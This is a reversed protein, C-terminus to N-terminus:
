PFTGGKARRIGYLNVSEAIELIECDSLYWHIPMYVINYCMNREDGREIGSMEPLNTQACDIGRKSMFEKFDDPEKVWLPAKWFTSGSVDEIHTKLFDSNENLKSYFFRTNRIRKEEIEKLKKLRNIGIQAQLDTFQYSLFSPFPLGQKVQNSQFFGKFIRFGLVKLGQGSTISEVSEGRYFTLFKLFYRTFYKFIFPNLLTVSIWDELISIFFYSFEIAGLEENIRNRCFSEFESNSTLVYGGRHTHIVKLDCLSSFCFDSFEYLYKGQYKTKYSQTLDVILPIKMERCFSEIEEMKPAIGALPAIFVASIDNRDKFTKINLNWSKEHYDIFEISSGTNLVVTKMDPLNIGSMLVVSGPGINLYELTLKLGYRAVPLTIVSRSLEFGLRSEFESVVEGRRLGRRM